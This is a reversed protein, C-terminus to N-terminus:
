TRHQMARIQERQAIAVKRATAFVEPFLDGLTVLPTRKEVEEVLHTAPPLPIECHGDCVDCTPYGSLLLWGHGVCKPCMEFGDRAEYHVEHMNRSNEDSTWEIIELDEMENYMSHIDFLFHWSNPYSTHYRSRREEIMTICVTGDNENQLNRHYFNGHFVTGEPSTYLCEHFLIGHNFVVDEVKPFTGQWLNVAVAFAKKGLTELAQSTLM